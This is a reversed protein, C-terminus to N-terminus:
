RRKRSRRLAKLKKELEMVLLPVLSLGAVLLWQVGSLAATKFVASLAPITIVSTQLLLCIFFAYVMKKNSLLGISFVSRQSRMSFAHVLQSISLVAFAMTRGVIVAGPSDFFSRGIVFALLALSGIMMGEVLINYWLGGAFLSKKSDVPKQNMVDRDRPEVGLALAPLSDTVLNVWLLQIALLPAPMRLLFAAFVTMIEGINCSLLFHVAKKINAYIGRGEEVAEVITAFNDDTLIMDAAGKAVDTGGQGMACGIDAAKLAPADNVGDGTMAVVAGRSQFARVIRVKHEPTVRAFVAYDYIHEVLEKQPTNDLEAGTMAKDRGTLIGLEAGIAKATVVHDGTIMVPKIGARRCQRVAEKAEPRPPDVMGILGLFTLGTEISPDATPLAACDRYAVGLVRLAREAMSQNLRQLTARCNDGGDVFSTCCRFLVEPAGKTIIRYKGSPLRHITSMLKRSSDFPVEAVRPWQRELEPKRKGCRAAAAVIASETPDGEADPRDPTGTLLSNNCLAGLTLIDGAELSSLPVRRAPTTVETVTMRNQTLTGTKDSCVVSASGLTEVAPLKRIIARSAAMRRVGLALVITVVAPLGEPIAAVALSVSIMFMELPPVSQILGMAFIALCIALAAAGLTKGTKALRVQLPTPPTESEMLMSAIKGVQTDMGVAVVVGTGRGSTVSSSSFVMNKREAVPTAGAFVEGANKGVPASEGTLSSEEAKLNEATLLRADAPVFDGTELAIIDGVVVEESPIKQLRGDRLVRAEPASMKQLAEIAREARYEQVVGIIANIVVIILIIIPDVFDADGNALSTIFSIVAAILLIIVMFDSFQEWFRRLLGKEKKHKLANRGGSERRQPIKASSLGERPNVDLRRLAEAAPFSHWDM